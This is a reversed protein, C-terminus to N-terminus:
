FYCYASTAEAYAAKSSANDWTTDPHDIAFAAHLSPIWEVCFREYRQECETPDGMFNQRLGLSQWFRGLQVQMLREHFIDPVGAIIDAPMNGIDPILRLQPLTEAVLHDPLFPVRDLQRSLHSDLAYLSCFTRRQVERELYKASDQRSISSEGPGTADTHIGSKQAARSASAIGEWFQDTRGECSVKLAAFMIHQVRFLSGKWDITECAKALTCGTDSCTNRIDSLSRGRVQDIPHSPSPLFQTAYSCIRLILAAFEIDIAGVPKDKAWWQQYSILFSPAHIVQKM